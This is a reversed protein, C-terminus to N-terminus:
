SPPRRLQEALKALDDRFAIQYRAQESALRVQGDRIEGLATEDVTGGNAATSSVADIDHGLETLQNTLETSVSTVRDDLDALKAAFAELRADLDTHRTDLQAHQGSVEDMRAVLAALSEPAETPSPSPMPTPPSALREALKSTTARHEDLAAKMTGIEAKLRAVETADMPTARRFLGM